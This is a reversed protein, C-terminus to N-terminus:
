LRAFAGVHEFKQNTRKFHQWRKSHMDCLHFFILLKYALSLFQVDYTTIGKQKIEPM